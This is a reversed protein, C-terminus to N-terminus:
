MSFVVQRCWFVISFSFIPFQHFNYSYSNLLLRISRCQIYMESWTWCLWLRDLVKLPMWGLWVVVRVFMVLTSSLTWETCFARWAWTLTIFNAAGMADVKYNAALDHLFIRWGRKPSFTWAIHCAQYILAFWVGGSAHKGTIGSGDDLFSWM